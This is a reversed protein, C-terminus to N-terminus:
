RKSPMKVISMQMLIGFLRKIEIKSTALIFGDKQHAYINSQEAILQFIEDDFMQLFKGAPTLDETPKPQSQHLADDWQNIPSPVFNRKKWTMKTIKKATPSSTPTASSSPSEGADVTESDENDPSVTADLLVQIQPNTECRITAEDQLEEDDEYDSINGDPLMILDVIDDVNSSSIEFPFSNMVLVKTTVKRIFFVSFYCVLM